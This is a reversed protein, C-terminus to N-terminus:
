VVAKAEEGAYLEVNVHRTAQTTDTVIEETEGGFLQSNFCRDDNHHLGLVLVYFLPNVLANSLHDGCLEEVLLPV